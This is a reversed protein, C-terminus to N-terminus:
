NGDVAIHVVTSERKSCLSVPPTSEFWPLASPGFKPKNSSNSSERAAERALQGESEWRIQPPPFFSHKKETGGGEREAFFDGKEEGRRLARTDRHNRLPFLPRFQKKSPRNQFPSNFSVFPSSLLRFLSSCADLSSRRRFSFLRWSLSLSKSGRTNKKKKKM